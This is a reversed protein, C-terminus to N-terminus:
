EEGREIREGLDAQIERRIKEHGAYPRTAPLVGCLESLNRRRPLPMMIARDNEVVFLVKDGQGLRLAERVEKPVTIQGKATITTISM